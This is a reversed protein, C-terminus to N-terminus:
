TVKSGSIKIVKLEIRYYFPTDGKHDQQLFTLLDSQLLMSVITKADFSCPKLMDPEFLMEQYTRLSLLPELADTVVHVGASFVTPKLGLETLQTAVFDAHNRNTLLVCQHKRNMGTFTHM